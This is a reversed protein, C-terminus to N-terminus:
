NYNCLSGYCAGKIKGKLIAGFGFGRKNKPKELIKFRKTDIGNLILNNMVLPM